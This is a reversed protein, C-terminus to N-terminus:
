FLTEGLVTGNKESDTSKSDPGKRGKIGDTDTKKSIEKFFIIKKVSKDSLPIKIVFDAETRNLVGGDFKGTQDDLFDFHLNFPIDFYEEYVPSKKDAFLRYFYGSNKEASLGRRKKLKGEITKFDNIFISGNNWQLNLIAFEDDPRSFTRLEEMKERIYDYKDPRHPMEYFEDDILNQKGYLVRHYFSTSDEPPLGQLDECVASSINLGALFISVTLCRMFSLKLNM